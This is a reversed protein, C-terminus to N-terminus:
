KRSALGVILGILLQVLLVVASATAWRRVRRAPHCSFLCINLFLPLSSFLGLVFLAIAIVEAVPVDDSHTSAVYRRWARRDRPALDGEDVVIM